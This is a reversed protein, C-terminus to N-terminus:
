LSLDRIGRSDQGSDAPSLRHCVIVSSNAFLVDGGHIFEEDLSIGQWDRCPFIHEPFPFFTSEKQSLLPFGAHDPFPLSQEKGNGLFLAVNIVLYGRGLRSPTPIRFGFTVIIM